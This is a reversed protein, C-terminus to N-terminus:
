CPVGRRVGATPIKNRFRIQRAVIFSCTIAQAFPFCNALATGASKAGSTHRPSGKPDSQPQLATLAM